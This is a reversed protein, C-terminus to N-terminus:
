KEKWSLFFYTNKKQKMEKFDSFLSIKFILTVSILKKLSICPHILDHKIQLIYTGFIVIYIIYIVM